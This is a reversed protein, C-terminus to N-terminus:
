ILWGALQATLQLTSLWLTTLKRAPGNSAAVTRSNNFQDIDLAIAHDPDIEASVIKAARTYSFTHWRDAGDWHERLRTHDTFVIEVTVPLIFEGKRHLTVSDRFSTQRADPLWWQAPTSEIGDVAYDLM